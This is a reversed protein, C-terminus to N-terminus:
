SCILSLGKNSKTLSPTECKEDKLSIKACLNWAKNSLVRFSRNGEENIKTRELVKYLESLKVAIEEFSTKLPFNELNQVLDKTLKQSWCHYDEIEKKNM